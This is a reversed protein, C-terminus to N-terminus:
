IFFDGACLDMKFLSIVLLFCLSIFLIASFINCSPCKNIPPASVSLCVDQEVEGLLMCMGGGVNEARHKCVHGTIVSSAGQVSILICKLSCTFPCTHIQLSDFITIQYFQTTFTTLSNTAKTANVRGEAWLGCPISSPLPFNWSPVPSQLWYGPNMRM